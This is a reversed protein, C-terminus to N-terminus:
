KKARRQARNLYTNQKKTTFEEVEAVVFNIVDLCDYYNVKRDKFIKESASEGLMSDIADLCFQIAEEFAKEYDTRERLEQALKPAKESFSKVNDALKGDTTDIEFVNGAIDLELYNKQFEFKRAM